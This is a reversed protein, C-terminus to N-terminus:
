QWPLSTVEQPGRVWAKEECLAEWPCGQAASQEGGGWALALYLSVLVAWGVAGPLGPHLWPGLESSVAPNLSLEEEEGTIHGLWAM